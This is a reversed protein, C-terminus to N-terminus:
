ARAPAWDLIRELVFTRTVNEPSRVVIADFVWTKKVKHVEHNALNGHWPYDHRFSKEIPIIFYEKVVGSHNRYVITVATDNM